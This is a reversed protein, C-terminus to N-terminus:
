MYLSIGEDEDFGDDLNGKKTAELVDPDSKLEESAYRHAPAGGNKPSVALIVLEKDGKIEDGFDDLKWGDDKLVKKQTSKPLDPTTAVAKKACLASINARAAIRIKTIIDDTLKPLEESVAVKPKAIYDVAGLELAQVTIQSGKETLTSIMVVPM